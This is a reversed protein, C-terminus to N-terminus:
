APTGASDPDVWDIWAGHAHCWAVATSRHEGGRWTRLGVLSAGGEEGAAAPRDPSAVGPAIGPYESTVFALDREAGLRELLAGLETRGDHSLYALVWTAFICVVTDPDTARVLPELEVLADGRRLDPPDSRALEIAARLRTSRDTLRPWLCAELWRCAEPDTVDVPALDIGLRSRVPPAADTRPPTLDGAVACALHVPSAPDGAHVGDDYSYGFRDFLLNLGASPGLEILSLPRDFTRHVHTLVPLLISSRGVENTQVSRRACLDALEDFREVLLARYPPWPDEPAGPDGRYCAALESDPEGLVLFHVAANLLVPLIKPRPAVDVIRELLEREAALARAIRAYLDCYGDFEADALFRYHDALQEVPSPQV